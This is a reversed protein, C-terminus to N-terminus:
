AKKFAQATSPAYGEEREASRSISEANEKQYSKRKRRAHCFFFHAYPKAMNVTAQETLM